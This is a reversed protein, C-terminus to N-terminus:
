LSVWVWHSTGSRNSWTKWSGSRNLNAGSISVYISSNRLLQSSGSLCSATSIPKEVRVLWPLGTNALEELTTLCRCGTANCFYTSQSLSMNRLGSKSQQKSKELLRCFCLWSLTFMHTYLHHAKRKEKQKITLTHSTQNPCGINAPERAM